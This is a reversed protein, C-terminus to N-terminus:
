TSMSVMLAVFIILPETSAAYSNVTKLIIPFFIFYKGFLSSAELLNLFFLAALFKPSVNNHGYQQVTLRANDCLM